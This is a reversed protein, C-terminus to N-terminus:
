LPQKGQAGSEGPGADAAAPPSDGGDPKIGLWALAEEITERVAINMNWEALMRVGYHAPHLLPPRGVVATRYRAPQGHLMSKIRLELAHTIITFREQLTPSGIYARCDILINSTPQAHAAAMIRTIADKTAEVSYDGTVAASLYGPLPRIDVSASM